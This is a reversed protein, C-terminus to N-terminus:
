DRGDGFRPALKPAVTAKATSDMNSAAAAARSGVSLASAAVLTSTTKLFERRNM